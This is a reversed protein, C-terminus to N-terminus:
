SATWVPASQLLVLFLIKKILVKCVVQDLEYHGHRRVFRLRTHILNSAVYHELAFSQVHGSESARSRMRSRVAEDAEDFIVVTPVVRVAHLVSTRRHERVGPALQVAFPEIQGLRAEGLDGVADFRLETIAAGSLDSGVATGARNTEPSAPGNNILATLQASGYARLLTESVIRHIKKTARSLSRRGIIIALRIVGEMGISLIKADKWQWQSSYKHNM